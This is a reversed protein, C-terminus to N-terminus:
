RGLMGTMFEPPRSAGLRVGRLGNPPRSQVVWLNWFGLSGTAMKAEGWRWWGGVRVPSQWVCPFESLCLTGNEEIM